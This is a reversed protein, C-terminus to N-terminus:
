LIDVSRRLLIKFTMRDRQQTPDNFPFMAGKRGGSSNEHTTRDKVLPGFRHIKLKKKRVENWFIVKNKYPTLTM